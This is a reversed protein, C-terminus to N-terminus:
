IRSQAIMGAFDIARKSVLQRMQKGLKAGSPTPNQRVADFPLLSTTIEANIVFLTTVIQRERCGLSNASKKVPTRIAFAIKWAHTTHSTCYRTQLTAACVISSFEIQSKPQLHHRQLPTQTL